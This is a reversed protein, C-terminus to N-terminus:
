FALRTLQNLQLWNDLFWMRRELEVVGTGLIHQGARISIDVGENFFM